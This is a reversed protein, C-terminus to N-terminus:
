DASMLEFAKSFVLAALLFVIPGAMWGSPAPTFPAVTTMAGIGLGGLGFLLMGIAVLIRIGSNSRRTRVEAELTALRRDISSLLTLSDPPAPPQETAETEPPMYGYVGKCHSCTVAVGFQEPPIELPRRCSRCNFLMAAITLRRRAFHL